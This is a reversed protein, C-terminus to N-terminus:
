HQRRQAASHHPLRVKATATQAVGESDASRHLRVPEVSCYPHVPTSGAERLASSQTSVCYKYRQLAEFQPRKCTSAPQGTNSDRYPYVDDAVLQGPQAAVRHIATLQKLHACVVSLVERFTCGNSPHEKESQHWCSACAHMRAVNPQRWTSKDAAM